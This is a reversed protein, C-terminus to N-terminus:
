RKRGLHAAGIKWWGSNLFGKLAVRGLDVVWSLSKLATTSATKPQIVWKPQKM